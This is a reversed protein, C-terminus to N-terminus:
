FDARDHGSQDRTGLRLSGRDLPASIGQTRTPDAFISPLPSEIDCSLTIHKATAAGQLTDVAYGIAYSASTLQLAVRLKGTQIGSVEFLDDIMSQLQKVNRLVIELYQRQELNLEGALQDLLITV